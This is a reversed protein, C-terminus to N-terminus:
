LRPRHQEAHKKWEADSLKHDWPVGFMGRQYDAYAQEIERSSTMVMSGSAVCPERLPVGALFMFDAGDDKSAVVEIIDNTAEFYATEHVPITTMTPTDEDLNSSSSSATATTLSGKRLYLFATEFSAPLDYTWSAGPALTVHFLALPSPLPAAATKDQYSGALVLTQSGDEQVVTPTEDEGGLLLSRPEDFKQQAPVNLWIQFLEQRSNFDDKGIDFMEEHLM